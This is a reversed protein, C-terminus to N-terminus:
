IERGKGGDFGFDLISFRSDAQVFQEDGAAQRFRARL